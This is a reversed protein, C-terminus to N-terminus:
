LAGQAFMTCYNEEDMTYENQLQTLWLVNQTGINSLSEIDWFGFM